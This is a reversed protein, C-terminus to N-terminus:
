RHATWKLPEFVNRGKIIATKSEYHRNGTSSKCIFIVAMQSHSPSKNDNQELKFLVKLDCTMYVNWLLSFVNSWEDTKRLKQKNNQCENHNGSSNLSEAHSKSM